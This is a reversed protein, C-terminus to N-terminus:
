LKNIMTEHYSIFRNSSSKGISINNIGHCIEQQAADARGSCVPQPVSPAAHPEVHPPVM